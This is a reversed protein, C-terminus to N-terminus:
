CERVFWWKLGEGRAALQGNIPVFNLQQRDRVLYLSVISLLSLSDVLDTSGFDVGMWGNYNHLKM